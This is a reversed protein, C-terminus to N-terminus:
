LAGLGDGIVNSVVASSDGTADWVVACKHGRYYGMSCRV